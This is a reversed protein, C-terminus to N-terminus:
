PAAGAPGGLRALGEAAARNRPDLQLTRSYAQRADAFRGAAEYTRGQLESCRSVWTPATWASLNSAKAAFSIAQDYSHRRLHTEALFYYAYASNPDIGIARELKDLAAQLDGAALDGRAHEVLRTAAAVQAPTDAHITPLLSTSIPTGEEERDEETEQPEGGEVDAPAPALREEEVAETPPAHAGDATGGTEPPPLETRRPGPALLVCGSLLTMGVVLLATPVIRSSRRTAPFSPPAPCAPM